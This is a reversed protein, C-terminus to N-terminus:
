IEYDYHILYRLYPEGQWFEIGVAWMGWNFDNDGPSAPRYVSYFHVPSYGDPLMLLGATPGSLFDDCALERAEVLDRELLPLIIESFSGEIPQGSGDQRGWNAGTPDDFITNVSAGNFIVPPNWWDHHVRLDRGPHVLTALLRGDQEAIAQQLTTVLQGVAPDSCFLDTTVSQTLFQSNVWGDADPADIAAWESGGILTMEQDEIRIAGTVPPLEAVVDYTIGPGERVNLTDDSTVFAVEYRAESEPVTVSGTPSATPPTTAALSLTPPPPLTAATTPSATAPVDTNDVTVAAVPTAPRPTSVVLDPVSSGGCGALLAMGTAIVALWNITKWKMGPM